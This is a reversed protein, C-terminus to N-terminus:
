KLMEALQNMKQMYILEQRVEAKGVEYGARFFILSSAVIVFLMMLSKKTNM